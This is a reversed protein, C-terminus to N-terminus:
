AKYDSVKILNAQLSKGDNSLMYSLIKELSRRFIPGALRGGWRPKVGPEDVAVFMILKRNLGIESADVGGIFSALIRDPDYGRGNKYPQQATGTKGYVTLGAIKAARGTGNTDQTVGKIMDLIKKSNENSFIQNREIKDQKLLSVKPLYGGNLLASYARSLQIATVAIGQGFSHTAVSVPRWEKHHRFIGKAEGSLEIGSKSGFGMDAIAEHLKEKGMRNAIKAMCINSSQILVQSLPERGIPHVDRVRYSGFNAFGSGCDIIETDNVVGADLAAAAVLPKFTSGPEFSDQAVVVKLQEPTLKTNDQGKQSHGMALVEGTEADMVLSFVRKAKSEELGRLMENEVISQIYADITLQLEQNTENSKLSALTYRNLYRGKADRSAPMQYVSGKLLNNFQSELGSLGKGDWGVKGVLQLAIQGQPNVRSYDDFIELKAEKLKKLSKKTSRNVGRALWIFKKDTKLKAEIENKDLKLITSLEQSISSKDKIQNPHIGVALTPLSVAMVRGKSDSITGRPGSVEIETSHQKNAKTMWLQHDRGQLTFLRSVLLINLTLIVVFCFALRKGCVTETNECGPQESKLFILSLYKKLLDSKFSIGGEDKQGYSKRVYCNRPYHM